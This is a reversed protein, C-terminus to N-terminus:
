ANAQNRPSRQEAELKAVEEDLERIKTEMIQHCH